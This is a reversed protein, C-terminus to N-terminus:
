SKKMQNIVSDLENLCDEQNLNVKLINIGFGVALHVSLPKKYVLIKTSDIKKNLDSIALSEFLIGNGPCIFALHKAAEVLRNYSKKDNKLFPEEIYCLNFRDILSTIYEYQEEPDLTRDPYVYEENKYLRSACVNIGIRLSFEFEKSVKEIVDQLVVLIEEDNFTENIKKKLRKAVEKNALWAKIVNKSDFSMVLFEKIGNSKSYVINLPRPLTKTESNLFRWPEKLSSFVLSEVFENKIKFFDDISSIELGKYKDLKLDYSIEVSSEGESTEVFLKNGKKYFEKILM